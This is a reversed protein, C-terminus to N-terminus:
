PGVTSMAELAPEYEVARSEEQDLAYAIIEAHRESDPNPRVLVWGAARNGFYPHEGDVRLLLYTGLPVPITPANLGGYFASVFDRGEVWVAFCTGEPRALSTGWSQVFEELGRQLGALGDFELHVERGEVQSIRFTGPEIRKTPM